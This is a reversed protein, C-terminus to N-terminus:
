LYLVGSRYKHERQKWNGMPILEFLVCAMIEDKHRWVSKTSLHKTSVLRLLTIHIM